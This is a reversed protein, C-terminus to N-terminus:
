SGAETYPGWSVCWAKTPRRRHSSANANRSYVTQFQLIPVHGVYLCDYEIGVAGYEIGPLENELCVFVHKRLMSIIDRRSLDNKILHPSIRGVHCVSFTSYMM